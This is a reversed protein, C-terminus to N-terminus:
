KVKETEEGTEKETAKLRERALERMRNSLAGQDPTSVEYPLWDREIRKRFSSWTERTYWNRGLAWIGGPLTTTPTSGLDLSGAIGLVVDISAARMKVLTTDLCHIEPDHAECQEPTARVYYARCSTPRAEYISCKGDQLFLCPVRREYWETHSVKAQEDHRQRCQELFDRKLLNHYDLYATAILADLPSVVVPITCCSGTHCDKCAPKIGEKEAAELIKAVLEDVGELMVIAISMMKRFTLPGSKRVEQVGKRVTKDMRELEEKAIADLTAQELGM